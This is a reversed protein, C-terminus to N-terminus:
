LSGSETWAHPIWNPAHDQEFLVVDFRLHEFQRAGTTQWWYRAAQMVKRQKHSDISEAASGCRQNARHRVEVIVATTGCRMILDIEGSRCHVNRAVTILGQNELFVRAKAEWRDGELRRNVPQPKLHTRKAAAFGVQGSVAQENTKAVSPEGAKPWPLAAKTRKPKSPKWPLM